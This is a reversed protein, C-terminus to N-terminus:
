SLCEIQRTLIRNALSTTGEKELSGVCGSKHSKYKDECELDAIYVNGHLSLRVCM